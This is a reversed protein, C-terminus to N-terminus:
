TFYISIDLWFSSYLSNFLNKVHFKIKLEQSDNRKLNVHLSLDRASYGPLERDVNNTNDLFQRSVYKSDFNLGWSM